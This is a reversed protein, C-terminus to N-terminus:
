TNESFFKDVQRKFSEVSCVKMDRIEKSLKNLLRPVRRLFFTGKTM